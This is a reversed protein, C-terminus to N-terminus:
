PNFYYLQPLTSDFNNLIITDNDLDFTIGDIYATGGNHTGDPTTSFQLNPEMM